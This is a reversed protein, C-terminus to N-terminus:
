PSCLGLAPSGTGSCLAGPLPETGLEEHIFAVSKNRSARVVTRFEDFNVVVCFDEAEEVPLTYTIAEDLGVTQLAIKGDRGEIRLSRYAEVPSMRSVVKGLAGLAGVLKSKLVEIQKM